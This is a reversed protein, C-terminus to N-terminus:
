VRDLYNKVIVNIKKRLNMGIKEVMDPDIDLRIIYEKYFYDSIVEQNSKEFPIKSQLNTMIDAILDRNNLDDFYKTAHNVKKPKVKQETQVRKTRPKLLLMDNIYKLTQDIHEDNIKISTIDTKYTQEDFRPSKYKLSHYRDLNFVIGEIKNTKLLDDSDLIIQYVPMNDYLLKPTAINHEKLIELQENTLNLSRPESAENLIITGFCYWNCQFLEGVFYNWNNTHVFFLDLLKSLKVIIDKLFNLSKSNFVPLEDDIFEINEYLILHRSSIRVNLKDDIICFGLSINSGDIKEFARSNTNMLTNLYNQYNDKKMLNSIHKYINDIEKWEHPNKTSSAM